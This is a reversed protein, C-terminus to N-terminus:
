MLLFAKSERKGRYLKKLMKEMYEWLSGKRRGILLKYLKELDLDLLVVDVIIIDVHYKLSFCLDMIRPDWVLEHMFHFLIELLSLSVWGHRSVKLRENIFIFNTTLHIRVYFWKGNVFLHIFLKGRVELILWKVIEWSYICSNKWVWEM